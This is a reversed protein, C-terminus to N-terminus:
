QNPEYLRNIAARLHPEYCTAVGPIRASPSTAPPWSRPISSPVITHRTSSSPSSAQSATVSASSTFRREASATATTPSRIIKLKM